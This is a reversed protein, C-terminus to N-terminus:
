ACFQKSKRYANLSYGEPDDQRIPWDNYRMPKGWTVQGYCATLGLLINASCRHGESLSMLFGNLRISSTILDKKKKRLKSSKEQTDTFIIKIAKTISCLLPTVLLSGGLIKGAGDVIESGWAGPRSQRGVSSFFPWVGDEVNWPAGTLPGCPPPLPPSLVGSQAPIWCPLSQVQTQQLRGQRGEWSALAERGASCPADQVWWGLGSYIWTSHAKEGM